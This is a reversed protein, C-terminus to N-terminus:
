GRHQQQQQQQKQPPPSHTFAQCCTQITSESEVREGGLLCPRQEKITVKERESERERESCV